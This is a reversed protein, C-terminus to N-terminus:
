AGEEEEQEGQRPPNEKGGAGVDLRAVGQAITLEGQGPDGQPPRREGVQPELDSEIALVGGPFAGDDHIGEVPFQGRSVVSQGRSGDIGGVPDGRGLGGSDSDRHLDGEGLDPLIFHSKDQPQKTVM